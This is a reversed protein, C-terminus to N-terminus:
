SVEGQGSDGMSFDLAEALLVYSPPIPGPRPDSSRPELRPDSDWGSSSPIGQSQSRLCTM